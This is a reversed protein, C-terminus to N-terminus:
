GEDESQRQEHYRQRIGQADLLQTGAFRNRLSRALATVPRGVTGRLLTLLLWGGAVCVVPQPMALDYTVAVAILLALFHYASLAVGVARGFYPILTLFGLILPAYALAVSKFLLDTKSPVDYVLTAIFDISFVYFFYGFTFIVASIFLSLVFRRPKVQNMFPVASQAIAEALGAFVVVFVAYRFRLDDFNATLDRWLDVDLALSHRIIHWLDAM